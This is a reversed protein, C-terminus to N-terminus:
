SEDWKDYYKISDRVFRQRIEARTHVSTGGDDGSKDRM